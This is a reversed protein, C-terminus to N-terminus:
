SIGDVKTVGYNFVSKVGVLVFNDSIIAGMGPTGSFNKSKSSENEALSKKVINAYFLIIQLWIKAETSNSSAM